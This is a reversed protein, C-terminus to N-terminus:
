LKIKTGILAHDSQVDTDIWSHGRQISGSGFIHDISNRFFSMGETLPCSLADTSLQSITKLDPFSKLLFRYSANFDGMIVCRSKKENSNIENIIRIIEAMHESFTKWRPGNIYKSARTLLPLHVQIVHLDFDPLHAHVIGGGGGLDNMLPLRHTRQKILRFKSAILTEVRERTGKLYHGRGLHFHQYGLKKLGDIIKRRQTRGAIECLGVVDLKNRRITELTKNINAVRKQIKKINGVFHIDWHSILWNRFSRGNCSFMTNFTGLSIEGKNM